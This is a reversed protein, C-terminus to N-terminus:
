LSCRRLAPAARRVKEDGCHWVVGSAEASLQTAYWVGDAGFRLARAGGTNEKFVTVSRAADSKYIRNSAPDAFFVNGDKDM